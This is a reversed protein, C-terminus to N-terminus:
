AISVHGLVRPKVDGLRTAGLHRYTAIAVHGCGLVSRTTIAMM